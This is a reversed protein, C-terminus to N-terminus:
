RDNKESEEWRDKGIVDDRRKVKGGRGDWEWSLLGESKERERM